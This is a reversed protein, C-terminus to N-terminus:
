QGDPAITIEQRDGPSTTEFHGILGLQRLTPLAQAVLADEIARDHASASQGVRAALEEARAARDPLSALAAYEQAFATLEQEIRARHAPDARLKVGQLSNINSQYAPDPSAQCCASPTAAFLSLALATPRVLWALPTM